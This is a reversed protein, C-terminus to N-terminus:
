FVEKIGYKTGPNLIIWVQGEAIALVGVHLVSYSRYRSVTLFFARETLDNLAM